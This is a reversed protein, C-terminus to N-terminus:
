CAAVSALEAGAPRGLARRSNRRRRATLAALQADTLPDDVIMLLDVDTHGPIYYDLTL